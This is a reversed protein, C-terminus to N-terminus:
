KPNYFNLLDKAYDSFHGERKKELFRATSSSSDYVVSTSFGTATDAGIIIKHKDPKAIVPFEDTEDMIIMGSKAPPWKGSLESYPIFNPHPSFDEEHTFTIGYFHKIHEKVSSAEHPELGATLFHLFERIGLDQLKDPTYIVYVLEDAEWPTFNNNRCFIFYDRKSRCLLLYEPVKM